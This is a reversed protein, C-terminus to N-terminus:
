SAAKVARSFLKCWYVPSISGEVRECMGNNSARCPIFHRCYGTDDKFSKGCHSERHGRGYNAQAKTQKIM